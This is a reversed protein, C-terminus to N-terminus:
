PPIPSSIPPPPAVTKQPLPSVHMRSGAPPPPRTQTEGRQAGGIPRQPPLQVSKVLLRRCRPQHPLAQGAPCSQTAPAQRVLAQVSTIVSGVLQPAHPRTQGPSRRHTPPAHPHPARTRQPSAQRSVRKLSLRHPAHPTARAAACIPPPPMQWFGTHAAPAVGHGLVDPAGMQVVSMISSALQPRQPLAHAGPDDHPRSQGEQAGCHRACHPPAPVNGHGPPAHTLRLPSRAFQPPQPTTHGTPEAQETPMQPHRRGGPEAGTRADAGVRGSSDPVM